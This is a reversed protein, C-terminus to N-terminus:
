VHLKGAFFTRLGGSKYLNAVAARFPHGAAKVAEVPHGHTAASLAETATTKTNTNVLLYVKLRDLPATATRSVGGAVAGALFYGPEPLYETLRSRVTQKLKETPLQTSYEYDVGAADVDGAQGDVLGLPVSHTAQMATAVGRAANTQVPQLVTAMINVAEPPATSISAPPIPPIPPIPSASSNPNPISEQPRSGLTSVTSSRQSTPDGSGPLTPGRAKEDEPPLSPQRAVESDTSSASQASPSSPLSSSSSPSPQAIKLISGFLAYLLSSTTGLGELTEESVLSDGEANLTVIHSYFSLASKLVHGGDGDHTHAPM